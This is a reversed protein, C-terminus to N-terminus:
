RLLLLPRSTALLMRATLSGLILDRFRTHSFAGMLTLDIQHETQYACLVEGAKGALNATMVERGAAALTDAADRLMKESADDSEGAYVLHCPLDAFLASSAVMDLAKRAGDSGDYALMIRKPALFERNVVLIPRHLSRVVLELHAGLHKPDNEHAEGRIGLVLVRIEPECDVLTEALSGHRQRILPEEIGAAKVRQTAADLMRRGKELELKSHRQELDALQDLLEEQSGLGIAGSLDAPVAAERHEINHLLKLPTGLRGSIWAAYDCVAASYQSGDVCAVVMSETNETKDNNM